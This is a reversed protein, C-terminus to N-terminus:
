GKRERTVGGVAAEPEERGGGDGARKRGERRGEEERM